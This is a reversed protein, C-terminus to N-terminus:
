EDTACSEWLWRLKNLSTLYDEMLNVTERKGEKDFENAIEGVQAILKRLGSAAHKIGLQIDCSDEIPVERVESLELYDSMKFIAKYGCTRIHEAVDDIRVGLDEYLDQFEKHYPYFMKGEGNWHFGYLNQRFVSLTALLVQLLGVKEKM